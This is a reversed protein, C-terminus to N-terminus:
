RPNKWGPAAGEPFAPAREEVPSSQVISTHTAAMPTFRDIVAELAGIEAVHVRAILCDEGTIRDCLVIQPTQRATEITDALRGPLPRIRIWATVPAGLAAPNLRASYGQIVGAEELRRIREAVSPASLGVERAIAAASARADSLLFDLIERDIADAPGNEYRLRKM